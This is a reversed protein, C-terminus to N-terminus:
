LFEEYTKEILSHWEWQVAQGDGGNPPEYADFGVEKSVVDYALQQTFKALAATIIFVKMQDEKSKHHLLDENVKFGFPIIGSKLEKLRRVIEPRVSKDFYDKLIDAVRHDWETANEEITRKLSKITDDQREKMFREVAVFEEHTVRNLQGKKELVVVDHAHSSATDSLKEDGDSHRWMTVIKRDTDYVWLYRFVNGGGTDILRAGGGADAVGSMMPWYNSTVYRRGHILLTPVRPRVRLPTVGSGKFRSVIKARMVM